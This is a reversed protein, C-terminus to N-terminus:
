LKAPFLQCVYSFFFFYIHKMAQIYNFMRWIGTISIDIGHFDKFHPCLCIFTVSALCRWGSHIVPRWVLFFDVYYYVVWETIGVFNLKQKQPLPSTLLPLHFISSSLQWSSRVASALYPHSRGADASLPLTSLALFSGRIGHESSPGPDCCLYYSNQWHRWSFLIVPKRRKINSLTSSSTNCLHRTRWELLSSAAEPTRWQM